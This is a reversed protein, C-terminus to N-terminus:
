FTFLREVEAQVRRIKELSGAKGKYEGKNARGKALLLEAFIPEVSTVLREEGSLFIHGGEKGSEEGTTLLVACPFVLAPQKGKKALEQGAFAVLFASTYEPTGDNRHHCIVKLGETQVKQRSERGKMTAIEQIIEKNYQTSNKLKQQVENIKDLFDSPPSQLKVQLQRELSILSALNKRVRTGAVFWLKTNAKFKESYLLKIVQLDGTDKVHTGCCTNNDIGGISVVRVEGKVDDPIGRSYVAQLEPSDRTYLSCTM